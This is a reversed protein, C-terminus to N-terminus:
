SSERRSRRGSIWATAIVVAVLLCSAPPVVVFVFAPKLRPPGLAVAGYLALAGLTLVLTVGYLAARATAPWRKSVFGAAALAMFPSLVWLTFLAMLLRSDNHRGAYLTLGVSGLAGVPAVIMAAARLPGVQSAM